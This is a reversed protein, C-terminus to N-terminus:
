PLDKRNLLTLLPHAFGGDISGLILSPERYAPLSVPTLWLYFMVMTAGQKGDVQLALLRGGDSVGGLGARARELFQRGENFTSQTEHCRRPEGRLTVARLLELTGDRDTAILVDRLRVLARAADIQDALVPSMVIRCKFGLPAAIETLDVFEVVPIGPTRQAQMQVQRLATMYSEGTQAQRDRVRRKLDRKETM